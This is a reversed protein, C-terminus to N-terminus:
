HVGNEVGRKYDENGSRRKYLARVKKLEEKTNVGIIDTYDEVPLAEVRAGRSRMIDIVDTLYYEQQANDATLMRIADFLPQTKFCYVGGNVEKIRRIRGTADREEVIRLFEGQEDRVIRGYGSPDDIFASLLTATNCHKTHAEILKRVTEATLLPTDGSLIVVDGRHKRLLPFAQLVAHGTGRQVDQVVSEVDLARLVPQLKEAHHGIVVVVNKIGAKRAAMVVHEVMPKGGVTHMVKPISSKMRKGEGAALIICVPTHKSLHLPRQFAKVDVPINDILRTNGVWAAICIRVDRDVYSVDELTDPDVVAVYDIKAVGGDILVSTVKQIVESSRKEGGAVLLRGLELSRFLSTAIKREDDTLYSNRSSMALGDKDRVTPVAEIEVPVSLDRVMRKVIVLQQYDKEGFFAVDPGVLNLLKLVILCVGDFHGPRHEGCLRTNLGQVSVTTSFDSPYIEEVRPVFVLDCGVKKLINMDRRLDRPYRKFDEKPGFQRPNVFISVVVCGCRQRARKILAIHGDHLYGMTPVFGVKKGSRRASDISKRLESVSRAIRLM